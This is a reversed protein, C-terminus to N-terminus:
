NFKKHASKLALEYGDIGLGSIVGEAVDSLYSKQRFDERAYINSIHIEIFPIGVGSLADRLAISSHTLAGPNIIICNVDQNKASHVLDVLEHEANSQHCLLEFSNEKAIKQLRDEIDKLTESGYIEPERSGLLNLNPGNLLMYRTM